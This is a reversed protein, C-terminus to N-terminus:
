DNLAYFRVSVIAESTLRRRLTSAGLGLREAIREM